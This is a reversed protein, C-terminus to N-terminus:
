RAGGTSHAGFCKLQPMTKQGLPPHFGDALVRKRCTNATDLALATAGQCKPCHRNRCSNYAVREHACDECREVLGGLASTGCSEIASIAKLQALSMHGANAKRWAAGHACFVDAVERRPRAM